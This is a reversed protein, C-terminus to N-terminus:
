HHNNGKYTNRKSEIQNQKSQILKLLPYLLIVWLLGIIFFEKLPIAEFMLATMFFSLAFCTLLYQIIRKLM